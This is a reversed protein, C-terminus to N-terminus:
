LSSGSRWYARQFVKVHFLVAFGTWGLFFPWWSILFYAAHRSCFTLSISDWNPRLEDEGIAMSLIALAFFGGALTALISLKWASLVLKQLTASPSLFYLGAIPVICLFPFALLLDSQIDQYPVPWWPREIELLRAHIGAALHALLPLVPLCICTALIAKLLRTAGHQRVTM